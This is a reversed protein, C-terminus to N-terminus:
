GDASDLYLTGLMDPHLTCTFDYVGPPLDDLGEVASTMGTGITESAFLPLGDPGADRATVDHRAVDLNTFELPDGQTLTMEAPQYRFGIAVIREDLPGPHSPVAAALLLAGALWAASKVIRM